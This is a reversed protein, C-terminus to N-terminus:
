ISSVPLIVYKQRFYGSIHDNHTKVTQRVNDSRNLMSKLYVPTTAQATIGNTQSLVVGNLAARNASNTEIPSFVLTLNM